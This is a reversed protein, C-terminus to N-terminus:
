YGNCTKNKKRRKKKAKATRQHPERNTKNYQSIMRERERQRQKFKKGVNQTRHKKYGEDAIMKLYCSSPLSNEFNRVLWKTHKPSQLRAMKLVIISVNNAYIRFCKRENNQIKNASKQFYNHFFITFRM